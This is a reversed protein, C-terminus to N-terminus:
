KICRSNTDCWNTVKEHHWRDYIINYMRSCISFDNKVFFIIILRPTRKCDSLPWNATPAESELSLDFSFDSWFTTDHIKNQLKLMNNSYLSKTIMCVNRRRAWFRSAALFLRSRFFTLYQKRIAIVSYKQYYWVLKHHFLQIALAHTMTM